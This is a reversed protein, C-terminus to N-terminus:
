NSELSSKQNNSKFQNVSKDQANNQSSEGVFSAKDKNFASFNHSDSEVQSHIKNEFPNDNM